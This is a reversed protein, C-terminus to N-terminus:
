KVLWLEGYRCLHHRWHSQLLVKLQLKLSAGDTQVALSFPHIQVEMEHGYEAVFGTTKLEYDVSGEFM